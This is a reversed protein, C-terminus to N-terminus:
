EGRKMELAMHALVEDPVYKILYQLTLKLRKNEETLVEIRKGQMEIISDKKSM